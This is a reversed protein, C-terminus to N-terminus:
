VKKAKEEDFKKSPRGAVKRKVVSDGSELRSRLRHVSARHMGTKDCIAKVGIGAKM